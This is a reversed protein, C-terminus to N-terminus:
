EMTVGYIVIFSDLSEERRGFGEVFGLVKLRM